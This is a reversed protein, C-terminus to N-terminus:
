SRISLLVPEVPKSRAAAPIMVFAGQPTQALFGQSVLLQLTAACEAAGVNWLRAAQSVTLRLGPMERYEGRVRNVLSADVSMCGVDCVGSDVDM